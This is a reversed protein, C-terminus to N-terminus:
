ISRAERYYVCRVDKIPTGPEFQTYTYAVINRWRSMMHANCADKTRFILPENNWENIILANEAEPNLLAMFVIIKWM